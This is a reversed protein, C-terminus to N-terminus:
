FTAPPARAAFAARPPGSPDASLPPATPDSALGPQPLTDRAPGALGWRSVALRGLPCEENYLGPTEADHSHIEPLDAALVAVTLLAL